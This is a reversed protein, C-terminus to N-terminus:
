HQPKLFLDLGLNLNHTFPRWINEQFVSKMYGSFLLHILQIHEHRNFKSHLM